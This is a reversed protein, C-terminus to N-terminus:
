AFNFQPVTRLVTPITRIVPATSSAMTQLVVMISQRLHHHSKKGGTFEDGHYTEKERPEKAPSKLGCFLHFINVIFINFHFPFSSTFPSLSSFGTLFFYKMVFLCRHSDSSLTGESAPSVAIAYTIM